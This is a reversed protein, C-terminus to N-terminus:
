STLTLLNVGVGPDHAATTGTLAGAAHTANGVDPEPSDTGWLPWYHDPALHSPLLGTAVSKVEGATLARSVIIPHAISGAFFHQTVGPLQAGIRWNLGTNVNTAPLATSTDLVGDIYLFGTTGDYVGVVHHWIGDNVSAGSTWIRATGSQFLVLQLKGSAVNFQAFRTTGTDSCIIAGTAGTTKIWAALTVLNTSAAMALTSVAILDSTGNFARAV